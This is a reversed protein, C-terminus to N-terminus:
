KGDIIFSIEQLSKRPTPDPLASPYGLTVLCEARWSSPLHLFRCIKKGNFWGIFCTGLGLEVAKLAMHELAMGMDILHYQVGQVREALLHTFLKRESCAVIIIPATKAWTNPVVMGGLGEETLKEKTVLDTVVAFRWPQANCASPALRAAELVAEIKEKEVPRALYDRVSRREQVVQDFTKM